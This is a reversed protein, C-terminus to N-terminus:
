QTNLNLFNKLYYNHSVIKFFLGFYINMM